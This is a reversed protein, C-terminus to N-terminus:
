KELAEIRHKKREVDNSIVACKRKEEELMKKVEEVQKLYKEEQEKNSTPKSKEKEYLKVEEM